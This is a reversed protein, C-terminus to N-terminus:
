RTRVRLKFGSILVSRGLEPVGCPRGPRSEIPCLGSHPPATPHHRVRHAGVPVPRVTGGHGAVVPRVFGPLDAMAIEHSPTGFLDAAPRWGSGLMVAVDHAAVGTAEALAAAAAVPSEATRDTM